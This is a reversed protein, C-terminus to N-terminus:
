QPQVLIISCLKRSFQVKNCKRGRGRWAIRSFSSSVAIFERLQFLFYSALISFTEKVSFKALSKRRSHRRILFRESFTGYIITFRVLLQEGYNLHKLVRSVFQFNSQRLEKSVGQNFTISRKEPVAIFRHTFM